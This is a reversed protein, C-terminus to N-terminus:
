DSEPARLLDQLANNLEPHNFTFGSELLHEPCANISDFLLCASEGMIIQMLWKPTVLLHPRHLAKALARSFTRNSAAAPACLNFIGAAQPNHLLFQIAAVMDDIHIWPMFQHGSGLQSGLGLKYPLLMKQLAGGGRGLVVGTRLLCVRTADNSAQRALNEWRACVHHPFGTHNVQLRENVLHQHQNGYYGVASGSIFVPPPNSSAHFLEVLHQTIYWRSECIRRKQQENWRKDAIPEGALNIVADFQNLDQLFGLSSLFEFHQDETWQLKVKAHPIDRTLVVFEDTTMTKLLHSGIFGSGGTLLIKM